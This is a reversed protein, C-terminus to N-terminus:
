TKLRNTHTEAATSLVEIQVQHRNGFRESLLRPVLKKAAQDLLECSPRISM